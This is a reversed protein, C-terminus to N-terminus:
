GEYSVYLPCSHLTLEVNRTALWGESRVKLSWNTLFKLPNSGRGRREVMVTKLCPLPLPQKQITYDRKGGGGEKGLFRSVSWTVTIDHSESEPLLTSNRTM